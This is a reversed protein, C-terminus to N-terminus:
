PRRIWIAYGQFAPRVAIWRVSSSSFPFPQTHWVSELPACQDSTTKPKSGTVVHSCGASNHFLLFIVMGPMAKNNYFSQVLLAPIHWSWTDSATIGQNITRNFCISIIWDIWIHHSSFNHHYFVTTPKSHVGGTLSKRENQHIEM